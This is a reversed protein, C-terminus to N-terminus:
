SAEEQAILTWYRTKRTRGARAIGYWRLLNAVSMTSCGCVSAVAEASFQKGDAGLQQAAAEIAALRACSTRCRIRSPKKRRAPYGILVDYQDDSDPYTRFCCVSMPQAMWFPTVGLLVVRVGRNRRDNWDAM